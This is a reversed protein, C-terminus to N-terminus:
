AILHRMLQPTLKRTKYGRTAHLYTVTDDEENYRLFKISKFPKGRADKNKNKSKKVRAPVPQNVRYKPGSM